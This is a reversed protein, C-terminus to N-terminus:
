ATKVLQIAWAFGTGSSVKVKIGYNKVGGASAFTIAGSTATAGTASTGMMTAIPTDPAGDSLNVLAVTATGGTALIMGTLVYTGPSINISDIAYIATGAHCLDFTTGSPYATNSIPSTPDGFFSFIDYVGSTILGVSGVPDTTDIVVGAADKLIFKYSLPALYVKYRGGATLVIPNTNPM